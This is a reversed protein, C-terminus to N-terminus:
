TARTLALNSEYRAIAAPLLKSNKWNNCRNCAIALNALTDGPHGPYDASLPILHDIDWDRKRRAGTGHNLPAGVPCGNVWCMIGDREIVQQETWREHPLSNKRARRKAEAQVKVHPNKARWAAATVREQEKRAARQSRREEANVEAYARAYELTRERNAEKWKTASARRATSDGEYRARYEANRRDRNLENYESVRDRAKQPDAWYRAKDSESSCERCRGWLGDWTARSAGFQDLTRWQKCRGCRKHEVGDIFEHQIRPRGM